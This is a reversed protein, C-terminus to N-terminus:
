ELDNYVHCIMIIEITIYRCVSIMIFPIQCYILSIFSTKLESNCVVTLGWSWKGRRDPSPPLCFWLTFPLRLLCFQLKCHNVTHIFSSNPSSFLVQFFSPVTFPPKSNSQLLHFPKTVALFIFLLYHEDIYKAVWSMLLLQSTYLVIQLLDKIFLLHQFIEHKVAFVVHLVWSELSHLDIPLISSIRFYRRISRYSWTFWLQFM